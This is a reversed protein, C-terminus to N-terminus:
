SEPHRGDACGVFAGTRYTFSGPLVANAGLAIETSRRVRQGAQPCQSVVRALRDAPNVPVWEDVRGQGVCGTTFSLGAAVVRRSAEALGLDRVDPVVVSGPRAEGRSSTCAVIPGFPRREICLHPYRKRMYAANPATPNSLSVVVCGGGVGATELIVGQAALAERDRDVRDVIRALQGYTPKRASPRPLGSKKSDSEGIFIVAAAVVVGAALFVAFAVRM